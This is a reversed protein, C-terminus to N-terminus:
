NMVIGGDVIYTQGTVFNSDKGAFFSVLNSVDEPVSTRKMPTLREVYDEMISGKPKGYQKALTEDIQEWMATGVIGPAYANVTINHRAWEMACVQTLARVAWKSASYPGLTAFPKFAVISAAGVIKGGTEQKIMAKAAAQYCNFVGRANVDFISTWDEQTVELMPKVQAIGANAVMLNLPGLAQVSIEIMKEVEDIKTVDAVVGVAKRGISEIEKVAQDIGDQNAPVDNICVSYGDRALRLAISLGIGRSSGTVIATRNESANATM